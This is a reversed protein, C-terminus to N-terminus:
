ALLDVPRVSTFTITVAVLVVVALFIWGGVKSMVTAFSPTQRRHLSRHLLWRVGRSAVWGVVVIIAAVGIRPVFDLTSEWLSTASEEIEAAPDDTARLWM